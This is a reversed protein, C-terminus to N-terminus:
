KPKELPRFTSFKMDILGEQFNVLQGCTVVALNSHGPQPLIMFM